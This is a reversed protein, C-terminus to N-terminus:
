NTSKSANMQGKVSELDNESLGIQKATASLLEPNSMLTMAVKQMAQPDVEFKQLLAVASMPNVKVAASLEALQEETLKLEELLQKLEM